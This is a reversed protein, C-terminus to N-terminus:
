VAVFSAPSIYQRENWVIYPSEVVIRRKPMGYPGRARGAATTGANMALAFAPVGSM